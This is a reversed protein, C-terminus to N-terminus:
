NIYKKNFHDLKKYDIWKSVNEYLQKLKMFKEQVLNYKIVNEEKYLFSTDFLQKCM